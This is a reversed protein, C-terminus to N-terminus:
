SRLSRCWASPGARGLAPAAGLAPHDPLTLHTVRQLRPARFCEALRYNPILSALHHIHHYGINATLWHLAPPLELVLQRSRRRPLLGVDAPEWYTDEFQHQVFFLFVGVAGAVLVVPLHVLIM